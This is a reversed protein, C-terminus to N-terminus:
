STPISNAKATVKAVVISLVVLALGALGAIIIVMETTMGADGRCRRHDPSEDADCPLRDVLRAMVTLLYQVEITDTM